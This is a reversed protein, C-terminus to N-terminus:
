TEIGKVSPPLVLKPKETAGDALEDKIVKITACPDGNM